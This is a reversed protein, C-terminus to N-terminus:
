THFGLIAELFVATQGPQEEGFFYPKDGFLWRHFQNNLGYFHIAPIFNKVLATETKVESFSQHLATIKTAVATFNPSLTTATQLTSLSAEIEDDKSLTFMKNIESNLTRSGEFTTSDQVVNYMEFQVAKINAYYAEIKDWNGYKAIFRSLNEREPKKTYKYLTDPTAVTTLDFYFPPLHLGM